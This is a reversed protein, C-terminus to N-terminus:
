AWHKEEHNSVWRRQRNIAPEDHNDIYDQCPWDSRCVKCILRPCGNYCCEVDDCLWVVAPEYKLDSM